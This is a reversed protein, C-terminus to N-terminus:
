IILRKWLGQRGVCHGCENTDSQICFHATPKGQHYFAEKM